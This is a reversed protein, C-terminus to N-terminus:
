KKGTWNALYGAPYFATRRMYGQEPEASSYAVRLSQAGQKGAEVVRDHVVAPAAYQGADAAPALGQVAELVGAPPKWAAAVVDDGREANAMMQSRLRMFFAVWEEATIDWRLLWSAARGQLREIFAGLAGAAIPLGTDIAHSLTFSYAEPCLTPFWVVDPKLGRLRDVAESDRYEGTMEVDLGQVDSAPIALDGLCVFELPLKWEQCLQVARVFTPLGKHIAIKGIVAIRLTDDGSIQRRSVAGDKVPRRVEPHPEVQLTKLEPFYRQVRRALDESPSIVREAGGLIQGSWKRWEVLDRPPSSKEGNRILEYTRADLDEGVFRGFDGTLFPQPSLSFYDHLTVDYPVNMTQLLETAAEIMGMWQHVHIRSVKLKRLQAVLEGLQTEPDFRLAIPLAPSIAHLVLLGDPGPQLLLTDAKDSILDALTDIHARVGGGQGHSMFLVVPREQGVNAAIRGLARADRVADFKRNVRLGIMRGQEMYHRLPDEGHHEPKLTSRYYGADFDPHVLRGERWGADAYHTLPELGHAAVDGNKRRYYDPSFYPNPAINQKSGFLLYDELMTRARLPVARVAPVAAPPAGGGLLAHGEDSYPDSMQARLDASDRWARRQEITIAAGNLYAGLSWARKSFGPGDLRATQADYWDILAKMDPMDHAYKAESLSRRGNGVGSCHFFIAREGNVRLDDPVSGSVWREALNWRAFNCGPHRLIKLSDFYAPAFDVWRQDTYIGSASEEFCLRLLRDRWWAAFKRGTEDARLGIFGLNYIGVLLTSLENDKIEELTKAPSMQHPTVVISAEELAEMVPDLRNLVVVDPDLYIVREVGDRGLLASAVWGKVATCMEVINHSFAWSRFDPIGLDEIFVIEDFEEIRAALERNEVTGRESLVLVLRADPHHKRASEGMLRAKDVYNFAASTYIYTSTHVLTVPKGVHVAAVSQARKQEVYYSTDFLPHPDRGDAAGSEIYHVLPNIGAQAVDIYRTLYLKADFLPHPSVGERGGELLFHVLPDIGSAAAAPNHALYYSPSFLPHPSLGLRSGETIYDLLPAGAAGPRAALYYSTNFLPHPDVGERPASLYHLYAGGKFAAAEPAQGLYYSTKFLPHPDRGDRTGDELFHALPNVGARAVDAYRDLYYRGDFLPHPNRGERGGRKWYHLLPEFGEVGIDLYTQSYYVPDFLRNPKLGRQRGERLYHSLGRELPALESAYHSVYWAEDFLPHPDFKASGDKLYALMPSNVPESGNQRQYHGADFYPSAPEGQAAGIALYRGLPEVDALRAAEVNNLHWRVDFLPHPARHQRWGDAVYHTLPDIGAAAVDPNSALYFATDFLPHPSAGTRWGGSLYDLLGGNSGSTHAYWAPDFYDSPQRGEAAGSSVYHTLPEQGSADIDPQLRMYGAPDFLPHPKRGERWGGKLYHSLPEAGSAVVDPNNALYYSWSFLPHPNLGSQATLKQDIYAIVADLPAVGPAMAAAIFRADLLPHPSLGKAAGHQIYDLLAPVHKNQTQQQRYWTTGLYPSPDAEPGAEGTVTLYRILLEAPTAGPAGVGARYFGTDFMAHPSNNSGGDLGLFHSFPDEDAGMQEAYLRRYRVGDFLPHPSVGSRWGDEGHLYRTLPDQFEVPEGRTGKERWQASLWALSVLPHPDRGDRWGQRLFHSLPEMGSAAVDPNKALYWRSDFLPCPDRGERWGHELYHLLPHVGGAATDPNRALYRRADFLPNPDVYRYSPNFVFARVPDSANALDPRQALMHPRDVLISGRIKQVRRGQTKTRVIGRLLAKRGVPPHTSRDWVDRVAFAREAEVEAVVEVAPAAEVAVVTRVALLAAAQRGVAGGLRAYHARIEATAKPDKSAACLKLLAEPVDPGVCLVGLGYGHTFEFSPYQKSVERWFRGVDYGRGEVATDHFLVVGRASLTDKWGEFDAKVAEYTHLGDIHLLDVQGSGFGPRAAEFTMRLLTSRDAYRGANLAANHGSVADFVESSYFGNQIDGEWNDIAWGRAEVGAEALAEMMAFYSFGWHSGLEVFTQPKLTRAIWRAFPAHEAWFTLPTWAPVWPAREADLETLLHAL